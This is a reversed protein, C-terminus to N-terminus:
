VSTILESTRTPAIQIVDPMSNVINRQSDFKLITINAAAIKDEASEFESNILQIGYFAWTGSM